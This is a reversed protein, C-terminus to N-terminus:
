TSGPGGAPRDVRDAVASGVVRGLDVSGVAPRRFLQDDAQQLLVLQVPDSAPGRRRLVAEAGQRWAGRHHRADALRRRAGHTRAAALYWGHADEGVSMHLGASRAMALCYRADKERLGIALGFSDAKRGEMMPRIMRKTHPSGVPGSEVAAVTTDVDLGLARALHAAEAVAAVHVAGLLNNILKYATGTGVPGFHLISASIAELWPRAADLDAPDAGVLLILEGAAAAAPPGNVPCDIYRLGREKAAAALKASQGHSITSCEIVFAGPALGGFAGGTASGAPMPPPM